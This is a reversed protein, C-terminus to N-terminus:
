LAPRIPRLPPWLSEMESSQVTCNPHIETLLALFNTSPAPVKAFPLPFHVSLMGMAASSLSVAIPINDVRPARARNGVLRSYISVFRGQLATKIATPTGVRIHQRCIVGGLSALDASAFRDSAVDERGLGPEM